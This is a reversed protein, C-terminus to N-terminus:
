FNLEANAINYEGIVVWAKAFDYNNAKLWNGVNGGLAKAANEKSMKFAGYARHVLMTAAAANASMDAKITGEKWAKNLGNDRHKPDNYFPLCLAAVSEFWDENPKTDPADANKRQQEKAPSSKPKEDQKNDNTDLDDQAVSSVMFLKMLWYKEAYTHAKGMAKDDVYLDGSKYVGQLPAEGIWDASFFNGDIDAITFQYRIVYRQVKDNGQIVEPLGVTAPIVILGHQPMLQNLHSMISEASHIAYGQPHKTDKGIAGIESQVKAIRAFLQGINNEAM